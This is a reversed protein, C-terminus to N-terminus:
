FMINKIHQFYSKILILHKVPCLYILVVLFVCFIKELQNNKQSQLLPLCFRWRCPWFLSIGNPTLMDALLHSLYGILIAHLTDSPFFWNYPFHLLRFFIIGSFIALLSHTFKRHGFIYFIPISIWRCRQGLLSQPHDIDPLLATLLVGPIIHWWDGNALKLTIEAKKSFIGCAIAFILHGEATM